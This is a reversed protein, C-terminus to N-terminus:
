QVVAFIDTDFIMALDEGEVTVSAGAYRSVLVSDGVSVEVPVREGKVWAGPGVALVEARVLADGANASDTLVLGSPRITEEEVERILVRNNIPQLM